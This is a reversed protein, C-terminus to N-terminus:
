ETMAPSTMVLRSNGVQSRVERRVRALGLEFAMWTKRRLFAHIGPMFGPMVFSTASSFHRLAGFKLRAFGGPSRIGAPLFRGEFAITSPRTVKCTVESM